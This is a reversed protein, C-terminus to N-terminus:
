IQREFSEIREIRACLEQIAKYLAATLTDYQVSMYIPTGNQDVADEEGSVAEPIHDKLEQAIFGIKREGSNILDFIKPQLSM